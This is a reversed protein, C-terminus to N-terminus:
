RGFEKDIAREVRFLLVITLILLILVGAFAEILVYSGPLVFGFLSIIMFMVGLRIMEKSSYKQAFNWREQSKQSSPTRYGYWHNIEKPPYKQFFWGGITFIIGSLICVVFFPSIPM